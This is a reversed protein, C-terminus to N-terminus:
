VVEQTEYLRKRMMVIVIVILLFIIAITVSIGIIGGTSLSGTSSAIGDEV